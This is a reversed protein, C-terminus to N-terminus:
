KSPRKKFSWNDFGKSDRILPEDPFDKRGLTEKEGKGLIGGIFMSIEQYASYSDFVKQFNYDKLCPNVIVKDERNEEKIVFCPANYNRFSSMYSDKMKEVRQFLRNYAEEDNQARNLYYDRNRFWRSVRDKQYFATKVSEVPHNTIFENVDDISFCWKEYNQRKNISSDWMKIVLYIKGCFGVIFKQASYYSHHNTGVIDCLELEKDTQRTVTNKIKVHEEQTRCFVLDDDQGQSM